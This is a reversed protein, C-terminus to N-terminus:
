TPKLGPCIEKRGPAAWPKAQGQAAADLATTKSYGLSLAGCAM